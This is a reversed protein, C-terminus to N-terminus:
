ASQEVARPEPDIALQQDGARLDADDPLSRKIVALAIPGLEHHHVATGLFGISRGAHEVATGPPPLVDSEGALHVLVLRRPPRGLNQVRAVTEQGRYCGKNLHVATGIWGVEHPITRHDTEFGLRPRRAQVRLADAAWTGVPRAGAATLREFFAPADARPVVLDVATTTDTMAAPMGRAFGGEPLAAARGVLPAPLGASALVSATTPGAVTIVTWLDSVDVPEVRKLFRMMTLYKLADATMEPEVDLWVTADLETLQWHQEVHGHPSLVLTQTSEGDFLDTIFQSVISHLWPLRDSGTVTLVGRNPRHIFGTGSTLTRQEGLPDGYHWALGADVGTPVVVM